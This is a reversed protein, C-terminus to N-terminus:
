AIRRLTVKCRFAKAVAAFIAEGSARGDGSDSALLVVEDTTSCGLRTLINLEASSAIRVTASFLDLKSLHDRLASGLAAPPRDWDAIQEPELRRAASAQAISNGVTCLFTRPLRTSM